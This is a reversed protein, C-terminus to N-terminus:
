SSTSPKKVKHHKKSARRTQHRVKSTTAKVKASTASKKGAMKKRVTANHKANKTTRANVQKSVGKKMAAARVHKAHFRKARMSHLVVHSSAKYKTPKAQQTPQSQAFAPGISLLTAGVFLLITSKLKM